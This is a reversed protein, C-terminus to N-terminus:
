PKAPITWSDQRRAQRGLKRNYYIVHRLLTGGGLRALERAARYASTSTNCDRWTSAWATKPREQWSVWRHLKPCWLLHKAALLSWTTRRGHRRDHRERNVVGRWLTDQAKIAGFGM